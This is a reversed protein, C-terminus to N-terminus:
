FNIVEETTITKNVSSGFLNARIYLKDVVFVKMTGNEMSRRVYKGVEEEINTFNREMANYDIHTFMDIFYKCRMAFGLTHVQGVYDFKVVADYDPNNEVLKLFFDSLLHYRGTMKIIMDEPDFGFHLFGELLTLAENIGKNRLRPNDVTAYFVNKTYDELFTPGQKKLAEVIYFDRCGYSALLNFSELYQQKRFEYHADTLAASLVLRTQASISLTIGGVLLLRFFYLRKM